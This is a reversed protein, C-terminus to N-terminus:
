PLATPDRITSITKMQNIPQLCLRAGLGTTIKYELCSTVHVPIPAPVNYVQFIQIIFLKTLWVTKINIVIITIIIITLTLMFPSLMLPESSSNARLHLFPTRFTATGWPSSPSLYSTLMKRTSKITSFLVWLLLNGWRYFLQFSM